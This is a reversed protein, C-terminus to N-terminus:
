FPFSADAVATALKNARGISPHKAIAANVGQSIRDKIWLPNYWSEESAAVAAQRSARRANRVIQKAPTKFAQVGERAALGFGKAMPLFTLMDLAPTVGWKHMFDNGQGNNFALSPREKGSIDSDMRVQWSNNGYDALRAVGQPLEAAMTVPNYIDGAATFHNKISLPNKHQLLNIAMPMVAMSPIAGM